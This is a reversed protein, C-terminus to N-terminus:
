GVVIWDLEKEFDCLREHTIKRVLILTETIVKKATATNFQVRRKPSLLTLYPHNHTQSCAKKSYPVMKRKYNIFYMARIFDEVSFFTKCSMNVSLLLSLLGLMTICLGEKKM